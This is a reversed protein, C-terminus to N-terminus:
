SAPSRALVARIRIRAQSYTPQLSTLWPRNMPVLPAVKRRAFALSDATSQGPRRGQHLRCEIHGHPGDHETM